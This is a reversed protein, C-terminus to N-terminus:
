KFLAMISCFLQSILSKKKNEKEIWKDSKVQNEEWKKTKKILMKNMDNVSFGVNELMSIACIIVDCSEELIDEATATRHTTTYTQEYPLIATAVEGLEEMTKGLRSKLDKKDLHSVVFLKEMTDLLLQEEMHTRQQNIQAPFSFRVRLQVKAFNWKVTLSCRSIKYYM